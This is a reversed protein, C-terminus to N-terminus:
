RLTSFRQGQPLPLDWIAEYARAMNRVFTMRTEHSMAAYISVAMSGDIFQAIQRGFGTISQLHAEGPIMYVKPIPLVAPSAIAMAFKILLNMSTVDAFFRLQVLYETTISKLISVRYSISLAGDASRSSGKLRRGTAALVCKALDSPSIVIPSHSLVKRSARGITILYRDVPRNVQELAEFGAIWKTLIADTVLHSYTVARGDANEIAGSFAYALVASGAEDRTMLGAESQEMTM